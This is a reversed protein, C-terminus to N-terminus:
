VLEDLYHSFVLDLGGQMWLDDPAADDHVTTYHVYGVLAGQRQDYDLDTRGWIERIKALSAPSQDHDTFGGILIDDRGGGYVYDLGTGGILVNRALYGGVLTDNGGGGVLVFTGGSEGWPKGATLHDNGAGGIVQEIDYVRWEEGGHVGTASMQPINVRVGRSSDFASYDLTDTGSTDSIANSVSGKMAFRYTDDLSGGILDEVSSYNIMSTPYGSYSGRLVGADADNIHWDNVSGVPGIITDYNDATGGYLYIPPAAGDFDAVIYHDDGRSGYLSASALNQFSVQNRPTVDDILVAFRDKAVAYQRVLPGAYTASDDAVVHAQGRGEVGLYSIGDLSGARGAYVTDGGTGTDIWTRAASTSEVNFWSRAAGTLLTLRNAGRADYRIGTFDARDVTGGTVAYTYGYWWNGQDHLTLDYRGSGATVNILFDPGTLNSLHQLNKCLDITVHGAEAVITVPKGGNREIDIADGKTTFVAKIDAVKAMPFYRNVGADTVVVDTATTDIKFNNARWVDDTLLLQNNVLSVSAVTREELGEVRLRARRAPRGGKPGGFWQKLSKRISM